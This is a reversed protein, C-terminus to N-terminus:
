AVPIDLSKALGRAVVKDGFLALTEPLPGIFVLGADRCQQAFRPNEALFGYGPHVCDCGTERAIRILSQIDLYARVPDGVQSDDLARAETTVRSHLSHADATAFVGVSQVGLADAAHAIRIAIEGRNAILVRKFVGGGLRRDIDHEGRQACMASASASAGLQRSNM